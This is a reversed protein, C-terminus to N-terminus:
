KALQERIVFSQLRLTNKPHSDVINFIYNPDNNQGSYIAEGSMNVDEAHYGNFVYSQLRLSNGPASDVKNFIPSKDNNQGSYVTGSNQNTNAAWLAFRGGITAQEVGDSNMGDDWLAISTLTFDVLTGMTTLTIPSATMAGLHNRHRIAVYYDGALSNGFFLSSTGDVDVVDGDRQLLASRTAVVTIPNMASRLEVFVWDVIADDGTIALVPATTVEGGGGNVHTFSPQTSYPETLPLKGESRLDDDMLPGPVDLLAAQLLMRLNLRVYLANVNIAVTATDCLNPTGGDCFSYSFSDPGNYNPDPDYSFTGDPNLTLTGNTVDTVLTINEMPGDVDTDNDTVDGTLMANEDVPYTDDVAMPADNIANVNIVVTATDCQNPTGGDCYSYTFSDPGNTNPDPTYTFTGDPNLILTGNMPPTAVTINEMPGDPDTDNLSVDGMLPMDEDTPFTDDVAMPADNVAAIPITVTATDCLNPTGGDCYSYMFSDSGNYGPDPTYTFTGDPNLTLTGNTVDTVLTINEMPGDVDTDNTTVDNMLTGDENIPYNDNNAVPADNVAAIPITVTATDCQNPTGGDCYSYTFSDSGNYNPDPTYTFSGDTNLVLTGNVVDTVLTVIVMPGDPDTDNATVNNMLTGDENIPYNDDVAMPADNVAAIPITVTATDCLNPTGGDCYSYMFSDSGNYGPDPTYTFTGDPNLTLTGNTVDTVLTINEMPGDVDTDNATVDNMLTGDENIPYNDNNAVPADNVAAIPITVTATDCQNPTGGDCYSYTFSDSGNYNPDPTYTFSGDTNLVLTGNVVDTVLTVIVMPGDPDTDNATVNNMLTGDENIPYNDDVAMPADNVADVTINVMATDCLNPTGGDCYSYTFSDTGNFAGNPTYSFTGDPNLTLTGNAVDTVLTINTMPGDVDTDNTTVDNMLTNGENVSYNDDVAVPADNIANVTITVTATDCLNPTGGDCYSYTFSDTPGDYNADPVYTFTGDPNLTLTGNAVDTVLTINTMPGDVDTDNTTVDNMLTGDESVMYSDDVAVPADNIANVTITVTATDCLNPTGGDCYSYTFSDTPGDYNADPVYTFTGDPNLTLTGNAVDTVLTINEMPGDVDTDNASVDNMLTGDENVMYSDDVAVPADNIANVTITVTATDCLNPTGGDCYSYTFSDTPGDFNADPVYTFTGDPNLTLTGNAVDTVLTINTMPGDVDTDNTTVDNMLTGDENVMYTDDVAVPADNIANVTIVVQATDCDGQVDCIAYFISDQGFFNANPTYTLFDDTPDNPTGNQNLMTTGNVSPTIVSIPGVAPGNNGFDDNALVPIDTAGSDENVSITDNVADPVDDLPCPLISGNPANGAYLDVSLANNVSISMENNFNAGLSNLIAQQIASDNVLVRVSDGVCDGPLTLRFLQVPQGSVTNPSPSNQLVVQYVDFGMLDAPDFGAGSYNAANVLQATWDGTVDIFSGADPAPPIAPDTITGAPLLMTFLGTVITVNNSTFNPYAVATIIRPNNADQIFGYTVENQASSVVAWLSLVALILTKYIQKM